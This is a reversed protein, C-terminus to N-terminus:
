HSLKSGRCPLCQPKVILETADDTHGYADSLGIDTVKYIHPHLEYSMQEMSLSLLNQVQAVKTDLFSQTLLKLAPKKLSSLIYLPLVTLTEPLVLQSPSTQNACTNRYNTLMEVLDNIVKEKTGKAGLKTVQILDHRLKFQSVSEVDASRCYNYVNQAAKWHYNLIRIKREGMPDTYLTACQAFVPTGEALTQDCRMVASFVKDQDLSAVGFESQAYSGFQGFYETVTLGTSVRLKIMVDSVSVRTLNRFIQYYLKEGHQLVDFDPYLYLDGGTIGTIPAMTAVDLSQKKTNVAIFLDVTICKSICDLAQERYFNNEPALM